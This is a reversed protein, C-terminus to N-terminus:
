QGLLYRGWRGPEPVSRRPRPIPMHRGDMTDMVRDRMADVRFALAGLAGRQPTHPHPRTPASGLQKEYAAAAAASSEPGLEAFLRRLLHSELVLYRELDDRASDHVAIDDIRSVLGDGSHLQELRRLHVQLHATARRLATVEDSADPLTRAALPVLTRTVAALHASAWAVAELQDAEPSRLIELARRGADTVIQHPDQASTTSM